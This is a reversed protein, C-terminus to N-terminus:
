GDLYIETFNSSSGLLWLKTVQIPHIVGTRMTRIISCQNEDNQKWYPGHGPADYQVTAWDDTGSVLTIGKVHLPPVYSNQTALDLWKNATNDFLHYQWTGGNNRVAVTARAGILERVPDGASMLAGYNVPVQTNSNHIPVIGEM